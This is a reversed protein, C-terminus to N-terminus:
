WQGFLTVFVPEFILSILSILGQPINVYVLPLLASTAFGLAFYVAIIYLLTKISKIPRKHNM